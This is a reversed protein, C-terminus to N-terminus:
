YTVINCPNLRSEERHAWCGLESRSRRITSTELDSVCVCVYVRYSEESHTILEDCLNTGVGSVFM